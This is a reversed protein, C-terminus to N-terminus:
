AGRDCLRLVMDTWTCMLRDALMVDPMFMDWVM